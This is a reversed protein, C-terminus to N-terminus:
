PWPIAVIAPDDMRSTHNGAGDSPGNAPAGSADMVENTPDSSVRPTVRSTTESSISRM